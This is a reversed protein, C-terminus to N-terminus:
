IVCVFYCVERWVNVFSGYTLAKRSSFAFLQFFAKPADEEEEDQELDIGDEQEAALDDQEAWYHSHDECFLTYVVVRSAFPLFVCDKTPDHQYFDKMFLLWRKGDESMLPVRDTRSKQGGAVLPNYMHSGVSPQYIM